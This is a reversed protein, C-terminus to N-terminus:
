LEEGSFAAEIYDHLHLDTIGSIKQRANLQNVVLAVDFRCSLNALHPNLGLFKQAALYIKRQKSKTIALAGNLDWNGASRTKVEVFILWQRDCAVIDVEGWRCHWQTALIQWGQAKLLETVLNEGLNGLVKKTV